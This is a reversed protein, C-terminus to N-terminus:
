SRRITRCTAALLAAHCRDVLSSVRLRSSGTLTLQRTGKHRPTRTAAAVIDADAPASLDEATVTDVDHGREALVNAGSRPLNENLKITV